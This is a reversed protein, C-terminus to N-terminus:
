GRNSNKSNESYNGDYIDRRWFVEKSSLSYGIEMGIFYQAESIAFEIQMKYDQSLTVAKTMYSSIM